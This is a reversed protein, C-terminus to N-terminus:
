RILFRFSAGDFVAPHNHRQTQARQVRNSNLLQARMAASVPEIVEYPVGGITFFAFRSEAPEGPAPVRVIDEERLGFLAQLRRVLSESDDTVVGVHRLGRLHKSVSSPLNM